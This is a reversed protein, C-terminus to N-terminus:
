DGWLAQLRDRLDEIPVPPGQPPEGPAAPGSCLKLRMEETEQDLARTFARIQTYTQRRFEEVRRQAGGALEEAPAARGGPSLKAKLQELNGQIKQHLDRANQTLKASLEQIHQNLQQPSARAHPGVSRHLEEVNRHIETVLRDAYPQFIDKVQDTHFAIKDTYHAVFRQLEEAGELLQATVERSPMLQRRLERARLSVQDLLEETFPQLRHRLDELHKGVQHHAEDVYPSLKVRLSELERRLVKRLSDADHGLRPQLSRDLPELKELFHGVYSVGDQVNGKLTAVDRGLKASQGLEATDKDSTLQSLYAWVGSRAPEAPVPLS